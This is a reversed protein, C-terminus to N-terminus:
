LDEAEPYPIDLRRMASQVEERLYEEHEPMIELGKSKGLKIPDTVMREEDALFGVFVVLQSAQMKEIPRQCLDDEDDDRHSESGM